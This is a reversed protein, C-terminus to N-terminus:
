NDSCGHACQLCFPSVASEASTKFSYKKNRQKLDLELLELVTRHDVVSWRVVCWCPTNQTFQEKLRLVGLLLSFGDCEGITLLGMLSKRGGKSTEVQDRRTQGPRIREVSESQIVRWQDSTEPKQNQDLGLLWTRIDRTPKWPHKKHIATIRRPTVTTTSHTREAAPSTTKLLHRLVLLLLLIKNKKCDLIKQSQQTTIRCRLSHDWLKLNYEPLQGAWGTSLSSFLSSSRSSSPHSTFSLSALIHPPPPPPLLLFFVVHWILLPPHESVISRATKCNLDSNPWVCNCKASAM